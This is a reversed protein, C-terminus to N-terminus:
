ESRPADLMRELRELRANMQELEEDKAALQQQLAQAAGLAVGAMDSVSIHRDSQGFGFLQYFDEATPGFHRGSDGQSRYRWSSLDLSSLMNLLTDADLSVFDTKAARSSLQYVSGDVRLDGGAVHLKAAPSTTGVGINSSGAIILSGSSAGPFIRFPLSSDGTVDRVFFSTENAAIDWTQPNFGASNDQELRIAPSDGDRIHLEVAPTPIGVGVNGASNVWLSNSPAGGEIRFPTTGGDAWDVAFFNPDGDNSGNISIRWDGGPFSSSSSTDEFHIQLNNEKLRITDFGFNEGNVCDIGVCQSGQVILDDAIVQDRPGRMESDGAFPNEEVTGSFGGIWDGGTYQFSGSVRAGTAEIAPTTGAARAEALTQRQQEDLKPALTLEYLYQGEETADRDLELRIPQGADFQRTVVKGDPRVLNLSASGYDQDVSWVLSDGELSSKIEAATAFTAMTASAFLFLITFLRCM